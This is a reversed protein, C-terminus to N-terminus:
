ITDGVVGYELFLITEL